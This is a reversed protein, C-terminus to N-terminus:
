RGNADEAEDESFMMEVTLAARVKEKKDNSWSTKKNVM